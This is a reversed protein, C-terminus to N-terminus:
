RGLRNCFKVMTGPIDIQQPCVTACAGCGICASPRKDEALTGVYMNSIFDKEGTVVNQNYMELLKPIDLGMPCYETCYRCATCPVTGRGLLDDAVGQLIERESATLPKDESFTDINQKVQEFNSMGSLCVKVQPISQIFRFCWQVVTEDPRAARLKAEDEAPIQALKGGRVPEMVWVPLSWNNLLEVKGRADQFTWDLYNLQIQCFEMDKGYAELFRTMCAIDGHASFGLHRIRGAEKQKLLYDMIGFKPDLYEDINKECVNHILYFDFFEMGTKELQKEFIEEVKDMNNVDYGPFKTAIMFEDRAHRNLAIGMAIESQGDHYGWATDFYNVGRGLAYDVMENVADQDIKANDGDVVPLRMAGFGLSSLQEGEFDKYLM